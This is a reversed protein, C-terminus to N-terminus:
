KLPLGLHIGPARALQALRSIMGEIEERAAMMLDALENIIIVIAPLNKLSTDDRAIREARQKRYGDLNREGLQSFLRYRKEMENIAVKLLAVSKDVETVVPALLHPIGNYVVLEVMKPDIM